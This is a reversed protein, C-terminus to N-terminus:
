LTAKLNSWWKGSLLFRPFTFAQELLARQAFELANRAPEPPKNELSNGIAQAAVAGGAMVTAWFLMRLSHVGPVPALLLAGLAEFMAVWFVPVTVLHILLNNRNRQHDAYDSWQREILQALNM